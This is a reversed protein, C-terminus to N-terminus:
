WCARQLRVPLIRRPLYGVCCTRKSGRKVKHMTFAKEVLDALVGASLSNDKRWDYPCVFLTRPNVDERFDCKALDNILGQYQESVSFSRIQAGPQSPHNLRQSQIVRLTRELTNKAPAWRIISPELAQGAQTSAEDLKLTPVCFFVLQRM